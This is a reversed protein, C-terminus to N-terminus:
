YVGLFCCGFFVIGEEGVYLVMCVFLNRVGFVCKFFVVVVGVVM